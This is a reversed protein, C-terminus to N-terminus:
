PSLRKLARRVIEGAELGSGASEEAVSQLAIRAESSKYGLSSLASLAQGVASAPLGRTGDAGFREAGAVELGAFEEKLAEIIKESTKKTFGFVASLMRCDRDIVARRFDPLSKSAKDLYELAKKAGTSPVRDRFISFVEKEAPTLFGYLTAGGGYMGFSESVHLLVEAGPDPLRLISSQAILVEYGVGSAEVVVRDATKSLLTGRLSSIM